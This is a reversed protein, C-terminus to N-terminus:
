DLGDYYKGIERGQASYRENGELFFEEGCSTNTVQFEDYVIEGGDSGTM